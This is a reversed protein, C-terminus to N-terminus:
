IIHWTNGVPVATLTQKYAAYFKGVQTIGDINYIIIDNSTNAPKSIVLGNFGGSLVVDVDILNYVLESGTGIQINQFKKPTGDGGGSGHTLLQGNLYISETFLSNLTTM